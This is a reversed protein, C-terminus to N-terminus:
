NSTRLTLRSPAYGRAAPPARSPRRLSAAVHTRRRRHPAVLLQLRQVLEATDASEGDFMVM